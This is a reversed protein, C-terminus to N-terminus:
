ESLHPAFTALHAYATAYRDSHRVRIYRGYAGEWGIKEIVGDGGAFVDAGMPAAWDVGTHMRTEGTIPHARAGFGARLEASALPRRRISPRLSKGREDYNDVVGDGAAFRYFRNTEGGVTLIGAVVHGQEALLKFADGPHVSQEFDVVLEQLRIFE